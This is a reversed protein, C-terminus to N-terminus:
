NDLKDKSWKTGEWIEDVEDAIDLYNQNGLIDRFTVHKFISRKSVSGDLLLGEVVDRKSTANIASGNAQEVVAAALSVATFDGAVHVYTGLKVTRALFNLLPALYRAVGEITEEPPISGWLKKLEPELEIFEVEGLFSVADKKQEDTLTHNTVNIFKIKEM